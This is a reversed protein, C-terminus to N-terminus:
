DGDRDDPAADDRVDADVGIGPVLQDVYPQLDHFDALSV